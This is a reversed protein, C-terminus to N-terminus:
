SKAELPEDITMAELLDDAYRIALEPITAVKGNEIPLFVGPNALLGQMAYIVAWQRFLARTMPQQDEM